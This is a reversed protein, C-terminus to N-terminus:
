PVSRIADYVFPKVMEPALALFSKLSRRIARRRETSSLRSWTGGSHVRYLTSVDSLFGIPSMSAIKLTCLWDYGTTIDPLSLVGKLSDTRYFCNSFTAVPNDYLLDVLDLFRNRGDNWPPHETQRGEAEFDVLCASFCMMVEPHKELFLRQKELKHESIWLDDGELIATYPTHVDDVLTQYHRMVGLNSSNRKAVVNENYKAFELAVHYTDDASSDDSVIIHCRGVDTQRLVSEIASAIYAGHNYAPILVTITKETM